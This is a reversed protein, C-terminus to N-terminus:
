GAIFTTIPTFFQKWIELGLSSKFANEFCWYKRIWINGATPLSSKVLGLAKGQQESLIKCFRPLPMAPLKGEELCLPKGWLLEYGRHHPSICCLTFPAARFFRRHRRITNASCSYHLTSYGKCNPERYRRETESCHHLLRYVCDQWLRFFSFSYNM